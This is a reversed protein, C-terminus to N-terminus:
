CTYKYILVYSLLNKRTCPELNCSESMSTDGDCEAGAGVKGDCTRERSRSGEDCTVSCDSWVGWDSWRGDVTHFLPMLYCTFCEKNLTIRREGNVFMEMNLTIRLEGKGFTYFISFCM